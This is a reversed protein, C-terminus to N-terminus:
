LKLKAGQSITKWFKGSGKWIKIAGQDEHHQIAVFRKSSVVRLTQINERGCDGQFRFMKLPCLVFPLLMTLPLLSVLGAHVPVSRHTVAVEFILSFYIVNQRLQQIECLM